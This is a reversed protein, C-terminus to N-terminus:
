FLKAKPSSAKTRLAVEIIVIFHNAHVSATRVCESNQLARYQFKPIEMFPPGMFYVLINHALVIPVGLFRDGIKLLGRIPIFKQPRQFSRSMQTDGLCASRLRKHSDRTGAVKLVFHNKLPSQDM